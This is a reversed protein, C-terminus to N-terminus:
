VAVYLSYIACQLAFSYRHNSYLLLDASLASTIGLVTVSQWPTAQWRAHKASHCSSKLLVHDATHGVKVFVIAMPDKPDPADRYGPELMQKTMVSQFVRKSLLNPMVEMLLMPHPFDDSVVHTGLSIIRVAGPHHVVTGKVAEWATESLIVQGGRGAYTLILPLTVAPGAFSM